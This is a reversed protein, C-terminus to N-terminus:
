AIDGIDSPAPVGGGGESLGLQDELAAVRNRLRALDAQRQLDQNIALTKVRRLDAVLARVQQEYDKM